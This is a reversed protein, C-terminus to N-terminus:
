SPLRSLHKITLSLVEIGKEIDEWNTWEMPSHSIGNVSPVFFMATKVKEAINQADHGAGSNMRKAKIGLEHTAKEIAKVVEIACPCPPHDIPIEIACNVQYKRELTRMHETIEGTLRRLNKEVGDRVDIGMEVRGPVINPAGPLVVMKGVTAVTSGGFEKLLENARRNVFLASDAAAVLADKRAYMPTTGAHNAQGEINATIWTIGTINEVIGIPIKEQDLVPGQEVHTELFYDVTSFDMHFDGRLGQRDLAEKLSIGQDNELALATDLSIHGVAVSSGLLGKKFASGEEGLFIAVEIPRENAHGEDNLIRVAELASVVGVIGDFMGGNIVSDMHSGSMVAGKDSKTGKKRGYINGVADIRVNLGTEKMRSIIFEKSKKIENTGELRYLGKGESLEEYREVVAADKRGMQGLRIIDEKWRHLTM